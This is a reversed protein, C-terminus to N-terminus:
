GGPTDLDALVLGSRPKPTFYTSKRPMRRRQQHMEVVDRAPVPALLLVADAGAPLGSAPLEAGPLPRVAPGAPDLGLLEALLLDEVVAHDIRPVLGDAAPAPLTVEFRGDRVVLVVSGPAQPEASDPVPRVALGHATFRDRIGAPDLGVGTIVRHIPGIRLEPGSTIMALMGGGGAAAAAAVRHNGDAVLLPHSAATKLLLEQEAGPGILWLEHTRGRGDVVQVAPEGAEDVVQWIVPTLSDGRLVPVLMSASTASALGALVSSREAVVEPYVDETHGVRAQGDPGVAAPDVMCLLGVATGDPGAVRYPLVVQEVRQYYDRELERLAARAAPLAELLSLGAARAHPTRHPHQVALLSPEDGLADLAANVEAPGAFEDVDPGPVWGDRALWGTLPRLWKTM